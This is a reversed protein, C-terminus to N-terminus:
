PLFVKMKLLKDFLNRTYTKCFNNDSERERERERERETPIKKRQKERKRKSNTEQM